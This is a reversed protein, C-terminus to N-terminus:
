LNSATYITAVFNCACLATVGWRFLVFDAGDAPDRNTWSLFTLGGTFAMNLFLLAPIM